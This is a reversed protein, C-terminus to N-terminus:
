GTITNNNTSVPHVPLRQLMTVYLIPIHTCYNQHAKNLFTCTCTSMVVMVWGGMAVLNQGEYSHRYISFIVGCVFLWAHVHVHIHVTNMEPNQKLPLLYRILFPFPLDIQPLM